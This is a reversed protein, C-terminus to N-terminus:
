GRSVEILLRYAAERPTDGVGTQSIQGTCPVSTMAYGDDAKILKVGVPLTERVIPPWQDHLKEPDRVGAAIWLAAELCLSGDSGKWSGQHWGREEILRAARERIDRTRVSM